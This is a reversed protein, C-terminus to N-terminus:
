QFIMGFTLIGVDIPMLIMAGNKLSSKKRQFIIKFLLYLFIIVFITASLKDNHIFFATLFMVEILFDIIIEFNEKM